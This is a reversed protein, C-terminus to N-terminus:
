PSSASWRSVDGSEFGDWFVFAPVSYLDLQQDVTQDGHYLVTGDAGVVLSDADGDPDFAAKPVLETGSNPMPVGDLPFSWPRVVSDVLAENGLVVVRGRPADIRWDVAYAEYWIVESSSPPGDIQARFGMPFGDILEDALYVVWDSAPSIAFDLVDGGAVPPANLRTIPGGAIPVSYLFFAEDIQEDALYVV